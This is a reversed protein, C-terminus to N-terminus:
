NIHPTTLKTDPGVFSYLTAAEHMQNCLISEYM